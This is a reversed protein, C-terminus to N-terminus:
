LRRGTWRQLLKMRKVLLYYTIGGFIANALIKVGMSRLDFSGNIISMSILPIISVVILAVIAHIPSGVDIYRQKAADILLVVLVYSITWIGFFTFMVIDVILGAILAFKLSYNRATLLATAWLFILILDPVYQTSLTLRGIPGLMLSVTLLLIIYAM